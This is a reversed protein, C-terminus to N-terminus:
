EFDCLASKKGIRILSSDRTITHASLFNSQDVVGLVCDKKNLESVLNTVPVTNSLYAINTSSLSLSSCQAYWHDYLFYSITAM